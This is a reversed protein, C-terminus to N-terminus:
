KRKITKNPNKKELSMIKNACLETFPEGIAAKFNFGLLQMTKITDVSILNKIAEYGDIQANVKTESGDGKSYAKALEMSKFIELIGSATNHLHKIDEDSITIRELESKYIQAIRVAEERESLLDTIIEEYNARIHNTDKMEKTAKIKTYVSTATGKAILTALSLGIEQFQPSISFEM